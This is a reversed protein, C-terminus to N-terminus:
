PRGTRTAIEEAIQEPTRGDTTTRLDGLAARDLAEAQASAEAATHLLEDDPRSRLPDGPQPWGGGRGRLLIREALAGPGAHLRCVTIEVGPLASTYAEIAARDEAPGTVTVLEAGAARLNRYVRALNGAKLRHGGPDDAPAPHVMGIQDLDVYGSVRGAQWARLHLAFGVTSKGTGTAGCLWLVPPGGPSAHPSPAASPLGPRPPAPAPRDTHEPTPRTASAPRDSNELAPQAVSAPRDTHELVLRAVESPPLDDTDVHADAIGAADLADAEHLVRPLLAAAGGRGLFRRELTDRGARLLCVTLAVPGLREVPAGRAPDLVGSVVACRAGAARFGALVAGLNDAQLLHRGPDAAPDPVLGGLQDIDVFAVAAGERALRSRVEWAATTKGVGPPGCLWLVPLPDAPGPASAPSRPM